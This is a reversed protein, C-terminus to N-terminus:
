NWQIEWEGPSIGTFVRSSTKSLLHAHTEPAQKGVTRVGEGRPSAHRVAIARQDDRGVDAGAVYERESGQEDGLLLASVDTRQVEVV